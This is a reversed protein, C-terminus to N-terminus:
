YQLIMEFWQGDTPLPPIVVGSMKFGVKQYLHIARMNDSRVILTIKDFHQTNAWALGYALVRTGVGKDRYPALLAIGLTADFAQESPFLDSWGIIEGDLNEIIFLRHCSCDPEDFAHQWALTPQFHRTYTWQGEACVANIIAILRSRDSHTYRRIEFPLSLTM